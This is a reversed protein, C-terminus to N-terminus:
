KKKEVIVHLQGKVPDPLNDARIEYDITFPSASEYNEFTLFLTDSEEHDGHKLKKVNFGVDYSNSKKITTSSVNYDFSSPFSPSHDLFSLNPLQPFNVALSDLINTTNSPPAPVSPPEPMKSYPNGNSMKFGDPFHMYVDIDKGPATGTNELAITLSATLAAGMENLRVQELYGEYKAFYVNLKKNYKDIEEQPVTKYVLSASILEQLIKTQALQLENLTDAGTKSAPVTPKKLHTNVSEFTLFPHQKKLDEIIAKVPRKRHSAFNTLVVKRHLSPDGTTVFYLRLKPM